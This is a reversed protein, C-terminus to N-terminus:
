DVLSVVVKRMARHVIRRVEEDRTEDKASRRREGTPDGGRNRARPASGHSPKGLGADTLEERADDGDCCPAASAGVSPDPSHWGFYDSEVGYRAFHAGQLSRGTRQTRASLAGVRPRCVATRLPREVGKGDFFLSRIARIEMGCGVQRRCKSKSYM